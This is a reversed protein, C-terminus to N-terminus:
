KGGEGEGQVYAQHSVKKKAKDLKGGAAEKSEAFAADSAAKDIGGLTVVPEVQTDPPTGPFTDPLTCPLTSPPMGPFTCTLHCALFRPLHQWDVWCRHKSACFLMGAALRHGGACCWGVHKAPFLAELAQLRPVLATWM